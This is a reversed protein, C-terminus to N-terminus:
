HQISPSTKLSSYSYSQFGSAPPKLRFGSFVLSSGSWPVNILLLEDFAEKGVSFGLVVWSGVLELALFVVCNELLAPVYGQANFYLSGLTM